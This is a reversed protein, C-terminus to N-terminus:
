RGEGRGARMDARFTLLLAIFVAVICLVLWVLSFPLGLLYPEIHDGLLYGPWISAVLAALVVGLLLKHRRAAGSM